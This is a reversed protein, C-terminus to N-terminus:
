HQYCRGSASKTKRKCRNGSKTTGMCQTSTSSTKKVSTSHIKRSSKSPSISNSKNSASNKSSPKCVSCRGYGADIASKLKIERKSYKLYHCHELHYKEGTKTVYVTQAITNTVFSLSIFLVLIKLSKM